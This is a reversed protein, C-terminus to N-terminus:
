NLNVNRQLDYMKISCCTKKAIYGAITIAVERIDNDLVSEQMEPDCNDM